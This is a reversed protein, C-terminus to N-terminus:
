SENCKGRFVSSDAAATARLSSFEFFYEQLDPRRIPLTAAILSASSSKLGQMCHPMQQVCKRM